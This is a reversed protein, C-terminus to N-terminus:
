SGLIGRLRKGSPVKTPYTSVQCAECNRAIMDALKGLNLIVVGLGQELKRCGLHTYRHM